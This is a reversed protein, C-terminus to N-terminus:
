HFNFGCVKKSFIAIEALVPQLFTRLDNIVRVPSASARTLRDRALFARWRAEKEIGIPL